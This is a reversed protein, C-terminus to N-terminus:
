LARPIHVSDWTINHGGSVWTHIPWLLSPSSRAGLSFVVFSFLLASFSLLRSILCTRSASLVLSFLRLSSIFYHSAM